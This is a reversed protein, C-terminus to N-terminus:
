VKCQSVHYTTSIDFRAVEGSLCCTVLAIGDQVTVRTQLLELWKRKEARTAYNLGAAVAERFQMLDDIHSDTLESALESELKMTRAQLAQYRRDIEYAQGQLKANVIGKVKKLAEAIQLAEFETDTM